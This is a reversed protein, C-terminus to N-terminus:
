GWAKQLSIILQGDGGNAYSVIPMSVNSSGGAVGAYTYRKPNTFQAPNPSLTPGGIHGPATELYSGSVFNILSANPGVSYLDVAHGSGGSGGNYHTNAAHGGGGGGFWGGGGGGTYSSTNGGRGGALALGAAASQYGGAGGNTQTGPGSNHAHLANTGGGGGGQGHHSAHAGSHGGGGGGGAIVLANSQEPILTNKRGADASYAAQLNGRGSWPISNTTAAQRISSTYQLSGIANYFIGTLGGGGGGQNLSPGGNGITSAWTKDWPSWDGSGRGIHGVSDSGWNGGQGVILMYPINKQFRVTSRTYGGGGGYSINSHSHIGGGAGWMEVYGTFDTAPVFLYEGYNVENFIDGVGSVDGYTIRRQRKSTLDLISGIEVSGNRGTKTITKTGLNGTRTITM